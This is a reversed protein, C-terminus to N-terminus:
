EQNSNNQLRKIFSATGDDADEDDADYTDDSSVQVPVLLDSLNENNQEEKHESKHENKHKRRVTRKKKKQSRRNQLKKPKPLSRVPLTESFFNANVLERSSEKERIKSHTNVPTSDEDSEEESSEYSSESSYEGIQDPPNIIPMINLLDLPDEEAINDPPPSAYAHAAKQLGLKQRSTLLKVFKLMKANNEKAKRLKIKINANEDELDRVLIQLKVKEKALRKIIKKCDNIAEKPVTDRVQGLKGLFSNHIDDRKVLLIRIARNQIMRITIQYEKDHKDIVRRLNDHNTVYTSLNAVLDCIINAFLSDKEPATLDNYYDEPIFQALIRDTFEQYTATTYRTAKQYYRVLELITKELYSKENKVGTLYAVVNRRYQDTVSKGEPLANKTVNYIHNFFINTFYSGMIELISILSKDYRSFETLPDPDM